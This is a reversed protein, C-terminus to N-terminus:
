QCNGGEMQPVIFITVQTANSDTKIPLDLKANDIPNDELFMKVHGLLGGQRHLVKRAFNAGYTEGMAQLLDAVTSDDPLHFDAHDSDLLGTIAGYFKVKVTVM